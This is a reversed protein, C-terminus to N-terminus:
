PVSMLLHGPQEEKVKTAPVVTPLQTPDSRPVNLLYADGGFDQHGLLRNGPLQVCVHSWQQAGVEKVRSNARSVIEGMGEKRCALEVGDSEHYDSMNKPSM